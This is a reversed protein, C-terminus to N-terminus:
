DTTNCATGRCRECKLDPSPKVPLFIGASQLRVKDAALADQAAVNQITQFDKEAARDTFDDDIRSLPQAGLGFGFPFTDSGNGAQFDEDLHALVRVIRNGTRRLPQADDEAGEGGLEVIKQRGSAKRGAHAIIADGKGSGFHRPL